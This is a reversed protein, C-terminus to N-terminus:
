CSDCKIWSKRMESSGIDIDNVGLGGMVLCTVYWILEVSLSNLVWIWYFRVLFVGFGVVYQCLFCLKFSFFM